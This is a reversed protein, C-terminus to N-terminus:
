ITIRQSANYIYNYVFTSMKGIQNTFQYLNTLWMLHHGTKIWNEQSYQANHNKHYIIDQKIFFTEVGMGIAWYPIFYDFHCQGLCFSTQPFLNLFKNSIFFADIGQTYQAGTYEFEYNVRNAMVISDAMKLEIRQLTEKDIKLEIDSNILCIDFKNEIAFDFIANVCVYHKGFIEKQTRSTPIFNVGKYIDKLTAIESIHNFSYVKYGM